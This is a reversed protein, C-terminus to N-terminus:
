KKRILKAAQMTMGDVLARRAATIELAGAALPFLATLSFIMENHWKIFDVALWIQFGILMLGTLMCVRAQLFPIRHTLVSFLCGSILMILMVLYPIKEYYMIEELEGGPGMIGAFRFFFMSGILLTSALTLYTTLKRFM